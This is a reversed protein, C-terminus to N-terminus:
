LHTKFFSIIKNNVSQNNKLCQYDLNERSALMDFIQSPWRLAEDLDSPPFDQRSGDVPNILLISRPAILSIIHPIDFHNLVDFLFISAPFDPQEQILLKYNVLSELVVTTKLRDDLAAAYLAMIGATGKGFCGIRGKDVQVSIFIRQWLENIANHIDWVQQGFLPRDTMLANTTAEFDSVVTEGCGRVDVALVAIGVNILGEILGSMLGSEKGFEDLYIVVPLYTEWNTPSLFLCPLRIGPESEFEIREYFIGRFQNQNYFWDKLPENKPNIGLVGKVQDILVSRQGKWEQPNEPVKIPPVKQSLINTLHAIATSNKPQYGTPFCLGENPIQLNNRSQLTELDDTGPSHMYTLAAPYPVSILECEEEPLQGKNKSGMLWHSFWGNANQRMERSYGHEDDVEELHLRDTADFLKYIQSTEAYIERTGEIPFMWDRKGAILCLPKPAFLSCIDSMESFAMIGPVQNCLDIGDEWNRDREAEIMSLFTTVFCGPVSVQIREDIASTYFTNLGGGSAGTMGILRTDVDSRSVLYDIARISEWVMLGAQSMGVLLPELHGHDRWSGLREGQGIPDYVLVIFGIRALNACAIQIDPELKSNEMWHGPVYLIAPSLADKRKPVYLHAATTLGPYTDYIIKEIRYSDREIIGVSRPNLPTREAFHVLGLAHLLHSRLQVSHSSWESLSQPRYLNHKLKGAYGAIFDLVMDRSHNGHNLHNLWIPNSLLSFDKM